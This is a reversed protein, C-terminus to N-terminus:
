CGLALRSVQVGLLAIGTNGRRVQRDPRFKTTIEQHFQSGGQRHSSQFASQAQSVVPKPNVSQIPPSGWCQSLASLM